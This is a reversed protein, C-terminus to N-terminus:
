NLHLYRFNSSVSGMKYKRIFYTLSIINVTEIVSVLKRDVFSTRGISEPWWLYLLADSKQKSRAPLFGGSFSPWVAQHLYSSSSFPPFSPVSLQVFLPIDCPSFFSVRSLLTFSSYLTFVATQVKLSITTVSSTRMWYKINNKANWANNLALQIYRCQIFKKNTYKGPHNGCPHKIFTIEWFVKVNKNTVM